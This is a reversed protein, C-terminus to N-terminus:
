CRVQSTNLRERVVEENREKLEKKVREWKGHGKTSKYIGLAAFIYV